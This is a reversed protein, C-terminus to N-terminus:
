RDLKMLFSQYFRESGSTFLASYKKTKALMAGSLYVSGEADVAMGTFFVQKKSGILRNWLEAGQSDYKRVIFDSGTFGGIYVSGEGDVGMATGASYLIVDWMKRGEADYKFITLGALIYLNGVRDVALNGARVHQRMWLENGAPDYKRLYQGTTDTGSVYFNGERDVAFDKVGWFEGQRFWLMAGSPDYKWFYNPALEKGGFVYVNAEGDVAMKRLVM